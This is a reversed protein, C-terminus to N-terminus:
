EIKMKKNVIKSVIYALVLMIGAIIISKLDTSEIVSLGIYGWFLMSFAKGIMLSCIFKEKGMESLGGLTNFLSSPAFPLTYLLVLQTFTVKNFKDIGNSVKKLIKKKFKNHLKSRIFKFLTYCLISGICTGIWSIIVGGIFGFANCNLAVFVSLPLIPLFSELFVIFMGFFIGGTYIFNTCFDIINNIIDM